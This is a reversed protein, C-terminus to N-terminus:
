PMTSSNSCTPGGTKSGVWIEVESLGNNGSGDDVILTVSFVTQPTSLSVDICRAGQSNMDFRKEIGNSLRIILANIQNNDPSNQPRDWVLIRTIAMPDPLRLELRFRHGLGDTWFTSLNGDFANNSGIGDPTRNCRPAINGTFSPQPTATPPQPVATPPQNTNTPAAPQQIAFTWTESWNSEQGGANRAKVHWSMTGPWMTGIHCSAGSQWDCPTMLSYPGGWLEVKYQTANSAASWLLTVDTSQPLSAGNPPNSLSPAAPVSPPPTPTVSPTPTITLTPTPTDTPGQITFSWTDSWESELGGSNRARVHWYMVGPLMKGIRCSTGSQWDCPTMQNYPGGWLEVKYQSANASSSWALNIEASEPWTSNNSPQSLAPKAPASPSVPPTVPPQPNVPNSPPPNSTGRQQNSSVIQRPYALNTNGDIGKMSICNSASKDALVNFHLHYGGTAQDGGWGMYGVIDGQRVSPLGGNHSNKYERLTSKTYLPSNLHLYLSVRGGDGHEIMLYNGGGIDDFGARVITGDAASLIPQNENASRNGLVKVVDIACINWVGYCHSTGDQACNITDKPGQSIYWGGSPLPLKWSSPESVIFPFFALVAVSGLLLGFKWLNTSHFM